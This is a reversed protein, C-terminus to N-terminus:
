VTNWHNENFPSLLINSLNNKYDDIKKNIKLEKETMPYLPENRMIKQELPTIKPKHGYCNVGFRVNPNAIYGGNIGPRGCDNEHGKIKQLQKWKKMNTPFFAMQNDSWGYNCWDAGKNYADEIEKYDALESNYAKCLAKADNYTYINGPINFVEKVLKPKNITTKVKIDNIPKPNKAKIQITPIPKFLDKISTIIDINYFYAIGNLLVLILFLSWLLIDFFGTANKASNSMNNNNNGLAAFIFYYLIIIIVLVILVIPNFNFNNLIGDPFGTIPDLNLDM